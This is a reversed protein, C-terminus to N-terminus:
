DRSLLKIPRGASFRHGQETGNLLRLFDLSGEPQARRRFLDELTEGGAARLIRLRYPQVSAQESDSMRALSKISANMQQPRQDPVNPPVFMLFRCVSSDKRVAVLQIMGTGNRFRTPVAVSAADFGQMAYTEVNAGSRGSMRQQMWYQMSTTVQEPVCSFIFGSGDRSLVTSLNRDPFGVFGEPLNLRVGYAGHLLRSGQVVGNRTDRGVIMGDIAGFFTASDNASTPNPLSRAQAESRSVREVIAPHSALLQANESTEGVKGRRSENYNTWDRLRTLM